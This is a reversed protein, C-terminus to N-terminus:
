LDTCFVCNSAYSHLLVKCTDKADNDDFFYAFYYPLSSLICSWVHFGTGTCSRFIVSEHYVIVCM